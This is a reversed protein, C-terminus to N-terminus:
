VYLVQHSLCFPQAEEMVSNIFAPGEQILFQNFNVVREQLKGEPCLRDQLYDLHRGVAEDRQRYNAVFRHQLKEIHYIIRLEARTVMKAMSPDSRNIHVKLSALQSRLEQQVSDFTKLVEGTEGQNLLGQVAQMPDGSMLAGAELGYKKLLRQAKRDVVTIGMRPFSSPEVGWLSGIASVQTFYAVESPGGVYVATPFLHDQVIPRLLVNPGFGEPNSEIRRLLEDPSYSGLKRKKSKKSKKSQYEGDQYVLKHRSEGEYSFLLTESDEFSVQPTFGAAILQQSRQQLARIAESRKKLLRTFVGTLEPKYGPLLSDFLVLGHDRFLGALWQGHAQRFDQDPRYSAGLTQLTSDLFEAQQAQHQLQELIESIRNLAITGVMRGDSQSGPYRIDLLRDARDYFSTSRVEMFDSDDSPLWFVPVASYGRDELIQSLRVATAAKYVALAPGGFLGLQQGTVVAVTDRGKLKQINQQAAEGAGLMQNLPALLSVLRERSFRVPRKGVAEVRRELAELDLPAPAGPAYLGSVEDFQYLYKLFLENQGPLTRYDLCDVKM